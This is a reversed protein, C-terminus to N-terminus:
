EFYYTENKNNQITAKTPVERLIKFINYIDATPFYKESKIIGKWIIKPM